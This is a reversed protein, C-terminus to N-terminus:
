VYLKRQTVPPFFYSFDQSGGSVIASCKWLMDSYANTCSSEYSNLVWQSNSAISYISYIIHNIFLCYICHLDASFINNPVSYAPICKEIGSSFCQKRAKAGFFGKLEGLDAKQSDFTCETISLADSFCGSLPSISIIAFFMYWGEYQLDGQIELM